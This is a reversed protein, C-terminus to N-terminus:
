DTCVARGWTRKVRSCYWRRVKSTQELICETWWYQRLGLLLCWSLCLTSDCIKCNLSQSIVNM